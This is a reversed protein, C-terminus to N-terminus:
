NEEKGSNKKWLNKGEGSKEKQPKLNKVRERVTTPGVPV